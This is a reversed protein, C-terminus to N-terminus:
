MQNSCITCCESSHVPLPPGPWRCESLVFLRFIFNRVAVLAKRTRLRFQKWRQNHVNRLKRMWFSRSKKVYNAWLIPMNLEVNSGQAIGWAHACECVSKALGVVEIPRMRERQTHIYNKQHYCKGHRTTSLQLQHCTRHMNVMSYANWSRKCIKEIIGFTEDVIPVVHLEDIIHDCALPIIAIQARCKGIWLLTFPMSILGNWQMCVCVFVGTGCWAYSLHFGTFIKNSILRCGSSRM